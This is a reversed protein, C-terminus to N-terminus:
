DRGDAERRRNEALDEVQDILKRARRALGDEQQEDLPQNAFAAADLATKIQAALSDRDSTVTGLKTLYQAYIADNSTISRNAYVLSHRGVSGLPANLQKYTKALEIFNERGRRLGSPLAQDFLKEALVRGDHVYSDKLGLLALM